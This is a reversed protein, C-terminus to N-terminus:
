EFGAWTPEVGEALCAFEEVALRDGVVMANRIARAVRVAALCDERTEYGKLREFSGPEADRAMPTVARWLFFVLLLHGTLRRWVETSM